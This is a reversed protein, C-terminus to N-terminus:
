GLDMSKILNEIEWRDGCGWGAPTRLVSATHYHSCLLQRPIVRARASSGQVKRGPFEGRSGGRM